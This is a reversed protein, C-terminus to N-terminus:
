DDIHTRHSNSHAVREEATPLAERSAVDSRKMSPNERSGDFVTQRSTIASSPRNAKILWGDAGLTFRSGQASVSLPTAPQM